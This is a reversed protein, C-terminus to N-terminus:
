IGAVVVARTEQAVDVGQAAGPDQPAEPGQADPGGAAGTEGSGGSRADATEAGGARGEEVVAGEEEVAAARGAVAVAPRGPTEAAAGIPRDGGTGEDGQVTQFNDVDIQTIQQDTLYFGAHKWQNLSITKSTLATDGAAALTNSPSVSAATIDAAIPVTITDGKDRAVNSYTSNVLRPMIANERLVSLGRAILKDILPTLTNAM